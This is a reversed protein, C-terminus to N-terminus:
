THSSDAACPCAAEEEPTLFLLQFMYGRWELTPRCGRRRMEDCTQSYHSELAPGYPLWFAMHGTGLTPTTPRPGVRGYRAYREHAFARMRPLERYSAILMQDCGEGPSGSMVDVKELKEVTLSSPGYHMFAAKGLFRAWAKERAQKANKAVIPLTRGDPNTINYRYLNM